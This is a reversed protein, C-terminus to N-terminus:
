RTVQRMRETATALARRPTKRSNKVFVHLVVSSACAKLPFEPGIPESLDLNQPPHGGAIKCSPAPPTTETVTILRLRGWHRVLQEPVGSEGVCPNPFKQLLDVGGLRLRASRRATRVAAARKVARGVRKLRVTQRRIKAVVNPAEAEATRNAPATRPAGAPPRFVETRHAVLQARRQRRDLARGRRRQAVRAVQIPRLQALMQTDDLLLAVAHRTQDAFRDYFSLPVLSNGTARGCSRRLGALTREAGTGFGLVVCWFMASPDVKRRRRMAGSERALREIEAKPSLSTLTERIGICKVRAVAMRRIPQLNAVGIQDSTTTWKLGRTGQDIVGSKSCWHPQAHPSSYDTLLIICPQKLDAVLRQRIVPEPNRGIAMSHQAARSPLQPVGSSLVDHIRFRAVPEGVRDAPLGATADHATQPCRIGTIGVEVGEGALMGGVDLSEGARPYLDRQEFREFGPGVRDEHLIGRQAHGPCGDDEPRASRATETFAIRGAGSQALVEIRHNVQTPVAVDIAAVNEDGAPLNEDAQRARM